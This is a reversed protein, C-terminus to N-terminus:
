SLLSVFISVCFWRLFHKQRCKWQAKFDIKMNIERDTVCSCVLLFSFFCVETSCHSYKISTNFLSHQKMLTKHNKEASFFFIDWHKGYMAVNGMQQTWLTLTRKHTLWHTNKKQRRRNNDRRQRILETCINTYCSGESVGFLEGPCYM